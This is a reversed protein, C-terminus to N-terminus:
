FAVAIGTRITGGFHFDTQARDSAAVPLPARRPPQPRTRPNEIGSTRAAQSPREVWSFLPEEAGGPATQALAPSAALLFLVVLPRM